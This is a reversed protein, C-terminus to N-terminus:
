ATTKARELELCRSPTNRRVQPQAEAWTIAEMIRRWREARGLMADRKQEERRKIESVDITM